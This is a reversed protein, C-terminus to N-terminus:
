TWTGSAPFHSEIEQFQDLPNLESFKAYSFEDPQKSFDFVGDLAKLRTLIDDGTHKMLRYIEGGKPTYVKDFDLGDLGTNL